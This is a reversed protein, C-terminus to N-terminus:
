KLPKGKARTPESETGAKYQLKGDTARIEELAGSTLMNRIEASLVRDGFRGRLKILIREKAKPTECFKRIAEQAANLLPMAGGGGPSAPLLKKAYVITVGPNGLGDGALFSGLKEAHAALYERLKKRIVGGSGTSGYGHIVEIRGRYGSRVCDNYFRVFARMAEPVTRQHLDISQSETM